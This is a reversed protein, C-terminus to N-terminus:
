RAWAKPLDAPWIRVRDRGRELRARPGATSSPAARRRWACRGFRTTRRRRCTSRGSLVQLAWLRFFLVGFVALALLGLIGVRLALKPTM